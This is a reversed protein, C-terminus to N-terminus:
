EEYIPIDAFAPVYYFRDTGQRRMASKAMAESKYVKAGASYMTGTSATKDKKHIAVYGLPIRAHGIPAEPTPNGDLTNGLISVIKSHDLELKVKKAM